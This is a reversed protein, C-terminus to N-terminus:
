IDNNMDVLQGIEISSVGKKSELFSQLLMGIKTQQQVM